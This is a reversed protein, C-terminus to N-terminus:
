GWKDKLETFVDIRNARKQLKIDFKYEEDYQNWASFNFTLSEYALEVRKASRLVDIEQGIDVVSISSADLYCLANILDTTTEDLYFSFEEDEKIVHTLYADEIGEMRISKGDSKLVFLGNVRLRTIMAGYNHLTIKTNRHEIIIKDDDTRHNLMLVPYGNFYTYYISNKKARVCEDVYANEINSLENIDDIVKKVVITDSIAVDSVTRGKQIRYNEHTTDLSKEFRGSRKYTVKEVFLFPIGKQAISEIQYKSVLKTNKYMLVAIVIQIIPIICIQIISLIIGNEM